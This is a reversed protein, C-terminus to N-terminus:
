PGERFFNVYTVHFVSFTSVLPPTECPEQAADDVLSSIEPLNIFISRNKYISTGDTLSINRSINYSYFSLLTFDGFAPWSCLASKSLHENIKQLHM